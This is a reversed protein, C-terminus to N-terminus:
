HMHRRISWVGCGAVVLVSVLALLTVATSGTASLVSDKADDAGNAGHSGDTLTGNEGTGPKGPVTESGDGGGPKNTEPEEHSEEWQATLTVNGDPLEAGPAYATGDDALWGTPKYGARTFAVDPASMSIGAYRTVEAMSGQADDAGPKFTVKGATQAAPAKVTEIKMSQSKIPDYVNVWNVTQTYVHAAGQLGAEEYITVKLGDPVKLSRVQNALFDLDAAEYTGVGFSKSQGSGYDPGWIQNWITVQRSDTFTAFAIRSPAFGARYAIAKVTVPSSTIGITGGTYRIGHEASPESGDTTYYVADDANDPTISFALSGDDAQAGGIIPAPTTAAKSDKPTLTFHIVEGAWDYGDVPVTAPASTYGDLSASIKSSPANKITLEGQANPHYVTAKGGNNPTVTVSAKVPSAGDSTLVKVTIDANAKLTTAASPNARRDYAIVQYEVSPDTDISFKGDPQWQVAKGDALLEYGSVTKSEASDAAYSATVTLKGDSGRKATLTPGGTKKSFLGAGNMAKADSNINFYQIKVDLKPYKATYEKVEDPIQAGYRELVESMDFGLADSYAKATAGAMANSPGDGLVRYNAPNSRVKRYVAGLGGYNKVQAASEATYASNAYDYDAYDYDDFWRLIEWKATVGWWIDGWQSAADPNTLRENLWSDLQQQASLVNGHYISTTFTKGDKLQAEGVRHRGWISFLNNTEEAHTLPDIDLMHGYEHDNAWGHASDLNTAVGPFVSEPLHYMTYWAFMSSPNTLNQTLELVIKMNTPRQKADADKADFGQLHDFYDLREESVTAANTIWDTAAQESNIDKLADVLKAARLEYVMRGTRISTADMGLSPNTNLDGAKTDVGNNVYERLQQLYTWFEQPNKADYEYYPYQGLSPKGDSGNQNEITVTAPDTGDNRIYLVQGVQRSTTDYEITNSGPNLKGGDDMRMYTYTNEDVRGVQRHAWLVNPTKANTNLTITFKATIGPRIYYGTWDANEFQFSQLTRNKDTDKSGITSLKITTAANTSDSAKPSAVKASQTSQNTQASQAPQQEDAMATGASVGTIMMAAIATIAAIRKGITTM